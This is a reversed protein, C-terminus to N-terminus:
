STKNGMNTCIGSAWNQQQHEKHSTKITKLPLDPIATRRIVCYASAMHYDHPKDYTAHVKRLTTRPALQTMQKDM